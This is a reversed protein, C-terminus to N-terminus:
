LDIEMSKVIDSKLKTTSYDHSRDLWVILALATLIPLILFLIKYTEFILVELYYFSM